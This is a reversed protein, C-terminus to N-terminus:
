VVDEKSVEKCKGTCECQGTNALKNCSEVQRPARGFIAEYGSRYADSAPKTQLKDGTHENKTVM